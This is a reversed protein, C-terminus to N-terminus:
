QRDPAEVQAQRDAPPRDAASPRQTVTRLLGSLSALDTVGARTYQGSPRGTRAFGADVYVRTITTPDAFLAVVIVADSAVSPGVAAGSADLAMLVAAPQQGTTSVFMVLPFDPNGDLNGGEYVQWDGRAAPDLVNPVGDPLRVEGRAPTVAAIALLFALAITSLVGIALLREPWTAVAAARRRKRKM